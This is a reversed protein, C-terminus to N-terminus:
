DGLKVAQEQSKNIIDLTRAKTRPDSADMNFFIGLPNTPIFWVDREASMSAQVAQFYGRKESVMAGKSQVFAPSLVLDSPGRVKDKCDEDSALTKLILNKLSEIHAATIGPAATMNMTSYSVLSQQQGFDARAIAVDYLVSGSAFYRGPVYRWVACNDNDRFATVIPEESPTTLSIPTDLRLPGAVALVSTSLIGGVLVKAIKKM